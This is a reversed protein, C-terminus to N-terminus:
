SPAKRSGGAVVNRVSLAIVVAWIVGLVIWLSHWYDLPLNTPDIERRGFKFAFPIAFGAVLGSAVLGGVVPAKIAAPLRPAALRGIGYVFPALLADHLIAAGVFWIVWELPKTEGRHDYIGYLGYLLILGGVALSLAFAIGYRPTPDRVERPDATLIRSM